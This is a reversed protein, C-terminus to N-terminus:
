GGLITVLEANWERRYDTAFENEDRQEIAKRLAKVLCLILDTDKIFRREPQILQAIEKKAAEARFEIETLLAGLIKDHNVETSYGDRGALVDAALIEEDSM